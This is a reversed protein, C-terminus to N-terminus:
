PHIRWTEPHNNPSTPPQMPPRTCSSISPQPLQLEYFSANSTLYEFAPQRSKQLHQKRALVITYPMGWNCQPFTFDFLLNSKLAAHTMGFCATPCKCLLCPFWYELQMYQLNHFTVQRNWKPRKMKFHEYIHTRRNWTEQKKQQSFPLLNQNVLTCSMIQSPTTCMSSIERAFLFSKSGTTVNQRM